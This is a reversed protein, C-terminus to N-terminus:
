IVWDVPHHTIPKFTVGAEEAEQRADVVMEKLRDLQRAREESEWISVHIVSGDPATTAYHNILGPLNKIAPVLYRGTAVTMEQVERFRTPDFTGSSIRVVATPPIPTDTV